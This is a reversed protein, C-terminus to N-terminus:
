FHPFIHLFKVILKWGLVWRELTHILARRRTKCYVSPFEECAALNSADHFLHINIFDLVTGNLEWRTRM